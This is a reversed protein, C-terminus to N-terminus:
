AMVALALLFGIVFLSKRDTAAARIRQSLTPHAM